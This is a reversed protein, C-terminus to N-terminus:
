NLRRKMREGRLDTGRPQRRRMGHDEDEDGRKGDDQEADVKDRTGNDVAGDIVLTPVRHCTGQRGVRGAITPRVTVRTISTADVACIRVHALREILCPVVRRVVRALGVADDRHREDARVDIYEVDDHVM